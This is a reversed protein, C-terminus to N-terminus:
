LAEMFFDLICFGHGSHHSGFGGSCSVCFRLRSGFGQFRLMTTRVAAFCACIHAYEYSFLYMDIYIHIYIYVHTDIDVDDLDRYKYIYTHLYIYIHRRITGM